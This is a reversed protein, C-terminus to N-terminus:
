NLASQSKVPFIGHAFRIRARSYRIKAFLRRGQITEASKHLTVFPRLVYSLNLIYYNGRFSNKSIRNNRSKKETLDCLATRSQLWKVIKSSVKKSPQDSRTSSLPRLSPGVPRTFCKQHRQDRYQRVSLWWKRGCIHESIRLISQNYKHRCCNSLNKFKFRLAIVPFPLYALKEFFQWCPFFRSIM